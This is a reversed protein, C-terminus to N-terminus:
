HETILCMAVREGEDVIEFSWDGDPMDTYDIHKEWIPPADDEHSLLLHAKSGSVHATFICHPQRAKRMVRPIETAIIDLLWACGTETLDHVGDSYQFSRAAWHRYFGNAGNRSEGYIRKFAEADM